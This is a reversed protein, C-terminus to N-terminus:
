KPTIKQTKIKIKKLKDKNPLTKNTKDIDANFEAIIQKEIKRQQKQDASLYQNWQNSPQFKGNEFFFKGNNMLMWVIGADTQDNIIQETSVKWLKRGNHVRDDELFNIFVEPPINRKVKLDLMQQPGNTYSCILNVQICDQSKSDLKCFYQNIKFQNIYSDINFGSYFIIASVLSLVIIIGVTRYNKPEHKVIGPSYNRQLIEYTPKEYATTIPSYNM